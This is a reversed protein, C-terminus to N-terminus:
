VERARARRLLRRDERRRPTGDIRVLEDRREDARRGGDGLARAADEVVLVVPPDQEVAGDRLLATLDRRRVVRRPRQEEVDLARRRRRVHLGDDVPQGRRLHVSTERAPRLLLGDTR